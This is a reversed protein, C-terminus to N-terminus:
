LVNTEDCECRGFKASPNLWDCSEMCWEHCMSCVFNNYKFMTIDDKCIEKYKEFIIDEVIALPTESLKINKFKETFPDM